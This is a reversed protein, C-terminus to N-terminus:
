AKFPWVKIHEGRNEQTLWFLRELGIAMGVGSEIRNNQHAKTLEFDIRQPKFGESERLKNELSWRRLVEEGDLLENYGNGLEVGEFYFEVREAWGEKNIKALASLQPPYDRLALLGRGLVPEIRGLLLIHFLDSWSASEPVRLGHFNLLGALFDKDSDPKLEFGVFTQFLKPVSLVRFDKNQTKLFGALFDRTLEILDEFSDESSYFELMTFEDLHLAGLEQDRFSSSVEFIQPAFGSLWLKKLAFEPSTPLEWRGGEIKFPHLSSEMAGSYVLKPTRVKLFARNTFHTEVTQLFELWSRYTNLKSEVVSWSCCKDKVAFCRKGLTTKFSWVPSM